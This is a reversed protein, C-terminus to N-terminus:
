RLRLGPVHLTDAHHHVADREREEPPNTVADPALREHHEIKQSQQELRQQVREDLADVDEKEGDGYLHGGVAERRSEEGHDRYVCM